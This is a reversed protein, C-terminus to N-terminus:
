YRKTANITFLLLYLRCFYLLSLNITTSQHEGIKLRKGGITVYSVENESFGTNQLSDQSM